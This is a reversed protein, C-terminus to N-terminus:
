LNKDGLKKVLIVKLNRKGNQIFSKVQMYSIRKIEMIEQYSRKEFYFLCLADRQEPNLLAMSEHLQEITYDEWELEATMDELAAVNLLNEEPLEYQKYRLLQFCHNRMLVYLWGKFNQVKELPLHTIAKLFVQQVADEARNEDKLYKMAVGFLLLTYRQLLYGLWENSGTQRYRQLLEEDTLVNYRRNHLL